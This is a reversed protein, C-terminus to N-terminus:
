ALSFNILNQVQSPVLKFHFCSKAKLTMLFCMYIPWFLVLRWSQVLQSDQGRSPNHKEDVEEVEMLWCEVVILKKIQQGKFKQKPWNKGL